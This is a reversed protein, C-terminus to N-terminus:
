ESDHQWRPAAGTPMPVHQTCARPQGRIATEELRGRRTMRLVKGQYLQASVQSRSRLSLLKRPHAYVAVQRLVYEWGRPTYFRAALGNEGHSHDESCLM